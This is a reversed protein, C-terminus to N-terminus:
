RGQSLHAKAWRARLGMGLILTDLLGRRYLVAPVFSVFSLGIGPHDHTCWAGLLHGSGWQRSESRNLDAALRAARASDRLSPDAPSPLSLRLLM